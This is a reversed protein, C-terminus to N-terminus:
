LKPPFERGCATCYDGVYVGKGARTFVKQSKIVLKDPHDCILMGIKRIVRVIILRM